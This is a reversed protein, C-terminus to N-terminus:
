SRRGAAIGILIGVGIMVALAAFPRRETQRAVRQLADAGARQGAKAAQNSLDVAGDLAARRSRRFRAVIDNLIPSIADAIQDGAALANASARRGSQRGIEALESQIARLHEVIAKVRPDLFDTSRPQFM